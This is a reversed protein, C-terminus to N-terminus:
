LVEYRWCKLRQPQISFLDLLIADGGVFVSFVCGCKPFSIFDQSASSVSAQRCIVGKEGLSLLAIM